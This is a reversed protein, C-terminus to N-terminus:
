SWFHLITQLIKMFLASFMVYMTWPIYIYIIPMCSNVRLRQLFWMQSSDDVMMMMMMLMMKIVMMNINHMYVWILTSHRNRVNLVSVADLATIFWQAYRALVTSSGCSRAVPALFSM